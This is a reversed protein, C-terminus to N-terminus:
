GTFLISTGCGATSFLIAAILFSASLKKCLKKMKIGIEASYRTNLDVTSNGNKNLM